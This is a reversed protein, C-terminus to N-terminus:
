TPRWCTSCSRLSRRHIAASARPLRYNTRLIPWAFSRERRNEGPGGSRHQLLRRVIGHSSEREALTRDATQATVTWNMVGSGSNLIQLAARTRSRRGVRHYLQVRSAVFRDDASGRQDDDSRPRSREVRQGGNFCNSRHLDRAGIGLPGGHRYAFRSNGRHGFGSTPSVRLWTGSSTVVSAQFALSGQGRNIVRVAKSQGASGQVLAFALSDPQAQLSPPDGPEVTFTVMVTRFPPNGAPTQIAVMRSLTGPNLSTADARIEIAAPLAGSSPVVQLWAQGDTTTAQSSFLLGPLSSSGSLVASAPSTSAAKARLSVSAPLVGFVPTIRLIARIRNNQTDAVYVDGATSVAVGLPDFLLRTPPRDEMARLDMITTAQLPRSQARRSRDKSNSENDADAIYINGAPDVFVSSPNRFTAAPPRVEMAQFDWM